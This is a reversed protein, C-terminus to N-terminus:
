EEKMNMLISKLEEESETMLTTDDAYRLNNISRWATKIGAQSRGAQCKAHHVSYLHKILLTVIFLRLTSRQWNPFLRNNGHETSVTAEQGAYLNRLLHTLHDTIGMEKLIKWLKNHHVCNFAKAYDTFCFYIRKQIGKRKRHGLPCQCNSRQNRQM